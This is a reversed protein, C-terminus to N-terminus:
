KPYKTAIGLRIVGMASPLFAQIRSLAAFLTTFDYNPLDCCCGAVVMGTIGSVLCPRWVATAEMAHFPLIFFHAVVSKRLLFTPWWKTMAFKKQTM